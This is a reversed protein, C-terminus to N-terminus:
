KHSSRSASRRLSSFATALRMGRSGAEIGEYPQRMSFFTLPSTAGRGIGRDRCACGLGRHSGALLAVRGGEKAAQVALAAAISSKGLGGKTSAVAITIPTHKMADADKMRRRSLM